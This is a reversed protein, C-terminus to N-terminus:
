ESEVKPEASKMEAETEAKKEGVENPAASDLTLGALQKELGGILNILTQRHAVQAGQVRKSYEGLDMLAKDVAEQNTENKGARLAKARAGVALNEEKLRQMEEKIFDYQLLSTNMRQFGIALEDVDSGFSDAGKTLSTAIWGGIAATVLINLAILIPVINDKM